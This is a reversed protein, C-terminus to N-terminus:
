RRREGSRPAARPAAGSSRTCRSTLPLIRQKISHSKQIKNLVVKSSRVRVSKALIERLRPAGWAARFGNLLKPGLHEL